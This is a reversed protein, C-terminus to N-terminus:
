SNADVIILTSSDDYYRLKQLGNETTYLEKNFPQYVYTAVSFYYITSPDQGPNFYSTVKNKM